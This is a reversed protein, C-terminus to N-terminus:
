SFYELFINLLSLLNWGKRLCVCHKLVISFCAMTLNNFYLLRWASVSYLLVSFSLKQNLPLPILFSYLLFVFLCPFSLLGVFLPSVTIHVHWHANFPGSPERLHSFKMILAKTHLCQRCSAQVNLHKFDLSRFMVLKGLSFSGKLHISAEACGRGRVRM